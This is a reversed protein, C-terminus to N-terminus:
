DESDCESCGNCKDCEDLHNFFEDFCKDIKEETFTNVFSTTDSKLIPQNFAKEDNAKTFAKVLKEDEVIHLAIGDHNSLETTLKSMDPKISDMGELASMIADNESVAKVKIYGETVFHVPVIYEKEPLKIDTFASIFELPIHKEKILDEVPVGKKSLREIEKCDNKVDEIFNKKINNLMNNM